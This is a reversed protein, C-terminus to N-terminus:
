NSKIDEKREESDEISSSKVINKMESIFEDIDIYYFIKPTLNIEDNNIKIFNNKELFYLDSDIDKKNRISLIDIKTIFKGKELVKILIASLTAAIHSPLKSINSKEILYSIKDKYSIYWYSNAPNYKIELGLFELSKNLQNLLTYLKISSNRDTMGLAEMMQSETAGINGDISERTLLYM